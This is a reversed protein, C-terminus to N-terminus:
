YYAIVDIMGSMSTIDVDGKAPDCIITPKGNVVASKMILKEPHRFRVLMKGPQKRLSCSVRAAIEGSAARSTFEVGATGFPTAMGTLSLESGDTFWERPLARGFHLLDDMYYIYMYRLWKIANAQDSTKVVASNSFGLIPCPHEAMANIEERYCSVWANFFMWIYIEPEDRDLHPMLGPLLNPQCSFGGYGFWNNEPQFVPYSYFESMYRNDLMDDTIWRANKSNYDYLGSILLYISSELIERAWGADRGRRYLRSPYYPVWSGNKLKVLPAYRRSKEYGEYLCRRYDDADARIRAAEPRGAAELARAAYEIGRWTLCNTTLWYCYDGVDELGGAPLWGYEWGRSFELEKKTVARQRIIWEAGKVVSDAVSDFWEKDGTM